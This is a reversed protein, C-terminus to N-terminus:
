VSDVGERYAADLEDWVSGDDSEPQDPEPEPIPDFVFEGDVYKYDHIGNEWVEAPIEVEIEGEGCHHTESAATIYNKEDIIIYAM